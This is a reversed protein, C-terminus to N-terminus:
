GNDAVKTFWDSDVGHIPVSYDRNCCPCSGGADASVRWGSNCEADRDCGTVTRVVNHASSYYGSTVKEGIDFPQKTKKM